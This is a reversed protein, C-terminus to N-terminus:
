AGQEKLRRILERTKEREEPTMPNSPAAENTVVKMEPKRRGNDRNFGRHQKREQKWPEDIGRTKYDELISKVYPLNRKGYYAAEKMAEVVWREGYEDVMDEIKEKLVSSITGFGESEFIRFANMANNTSSTNNNIQNHNLYPNPNRISETLSGDSTRQVDEPCGESERKKGRNNRKREADKQRLMILKGAYDFWDHIFYGTDTQDIFGSTILANFFEDADGDWMCADAIDDPGYKELSGSQAHNMAWWWLFHLHGVAQVPKIKLLRCMRKTKPHHPLSEHSEIWAM